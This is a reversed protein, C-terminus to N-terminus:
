PQLDSVMAAELFLLNDQTGLASPQPLAAQSSAVPDAPALEHLTEYATSLVKSGMGLAPLIPTPKGMQCILVSMFSSHNARPKDCLVALASCPFSGPDGGWCRPPGAPLFPDKM